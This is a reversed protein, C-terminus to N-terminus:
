SYCLSKGINDENEKTRTWPYTLNESWESNFEFQKSLKTILDFYLLYAKPKTTRSKWRANNCKPCYKENEQFIHNCCNSCYHYVTPKSINNTKLYEISRVQEFFRDMLRYYVYSSPPFLSLPHLAKYFQLLADFSM